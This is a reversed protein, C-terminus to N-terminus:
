QGGRKIKNYETRDIKYKMNAKRAAADRKKSKNEMIRPFLLIAVVIILAILVIIGLELSYNWHEM